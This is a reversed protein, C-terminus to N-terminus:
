GTMLVVPILRTEAQRKLVSCASFGDRHPMRVDMLIVDPEHEAVADLAEEGDRACHVRYGDATLLRSLLRLNSEVDDVVLLTGAGPTVVRSATAPRTLLKEVM